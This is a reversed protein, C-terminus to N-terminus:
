EGQSTKSVGKPVTTASEGEGRHEVSQANPIRSTPFSFLILVPKPIIDLANSKSKTM